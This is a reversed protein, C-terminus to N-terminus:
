PQNFIEFLGNRKLLKAVQNKQYTFRDTDVAEKKFISPFTKNLFDNASSKLTQYGENKIEQYAKGIWDYTIEHGLKKVYETIEKYRDFNNILGESSCTFFVRM